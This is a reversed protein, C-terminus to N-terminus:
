KVIFYRSDWSGESSSEYVFCHQGIAKRGLPREATVPKWPVPSNHTKATVPKGFFGNIEDPEGDDHEWDEFEDEFEFKHQRYTKEEHFDEVLQTRQTKISPLCPKGSDWQPKKLTQYLVPERKVDAPFMKTEPNSATSSKPGKKTINKRGRPAVKPKGAVSKVPNDMAVSRVKKGLIGGENLPPLSLNKPSNRAKLPETSVINDKIEFTESGLFDEVIPLPRLGIEVLSRRPPTARNASLVSIKNPPQKVPVTKCTQVPDSRLKLGNEFGSALEGVCESKEIYLDSRKPKHASPKKKISVKPQNSTGDNLSVLCINDVTEKLLNRKMPCPVSLGAAQPIGKKEKCHPRSDETALSEKKHVSSFCSPATKKSLSDEEKEQKAPTEQETRADVNKPSEDEEVEEKSAKDGGMKMKKDKESPKDNKVFAVVNSKKSVENDVKDVEAAEELPDDKVILVSVNEQRESLFVMKVNPPTTFSCSGHTESADGTFSKEEQLKLCPSVGNNRDDLPAPAVTGRHKKFWKGLGKGPRHKSPKPKIGDRDKTATHDEKKVEDERAPHNTKEVCEDAKGERKGGIQQQKEKSREASGMRKDRKKKKSKRGRPKETRPQQGSEYGNEVEIIPEKIFDEKGMSSRKKRFSTRDFVTLQNIEVLSKGVNSLINPFGKNKGNDEINKVPLKGPTQQQENSLLERRPDRHVQPLTTDTRPRWSNTKISTEKGDPIVKINNLLVNRSTTVNEDVPPLDSKEKGSSFNVNSSRFTSVNPSKIERVEGRSTGCFGAESSTSAKTSQIKKDVSAVDKPGVNSSHFGSDASNDNSDNTREVNAISHGNSRGNWRSPVVYSSLFDFLTIIREM